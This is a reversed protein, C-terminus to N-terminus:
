RKEARPYPGGLKADIRGPGNLWELDTSSRPEWIQNGHARITVWLDLGGGDARRDRDSQGPSPIGLRPGSLHFNLSREIDMDMDIDWIHRNAQASSAGPVQGECHLSLRMWHRGATILITEPRRVAAAANKDADVLDALSSFFRLLLPLESRVQVSSCGGFVGEMPRATQRLSIQWMM